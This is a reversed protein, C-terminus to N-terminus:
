HCWRSWSDNLAAKFRLDVKMSIKMASMSFLSQENLSSINQEDIHSSEWNQSDGVLLKFSILVRKLFFCENFAENLVKDISQLSCTKFFSLIHQIASVEFLLWLMTWVGPIGLFIPSFRQIGVYLIELYRNTLLASLSMKKMYDLPVHIWNRLLLLSPDTTSWPGYFWPLNYKLQQSYFHKSSCSFSSVRLATVM